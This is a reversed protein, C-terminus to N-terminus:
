SRPKDYAFCQLYAEVCRNVVETQGNTQPHYATSRRLYTGQLKFLETWFHNLFVKDRDSIISHPVGHLKVVEKVFVVAMELAMYPHKLPLFCAYKSLRDVVVLM